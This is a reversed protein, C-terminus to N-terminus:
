SGLGCTGDTLRVIRLSGLTSALTDRRYGATGLHDTLLLAYLEQLWEVSKGRLWDQVEKPTINEPPGANGAPSMKNCLLEVFDDVDWTGIALSDLFRDANSSKQAVGVAWQRPADEYDILFELDEDSLLSKLSAKGQLLDRGPGHSKAHTPTLPEDNMESIITSRIVDYREAIQ